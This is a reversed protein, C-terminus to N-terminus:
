PTPCRHWLILRDDEETLMRDQGRFELAVRQTGSIIPPDEESYIIEEYDIVLEEGDLRWSGVRTAHFGGIEEFSRDAGLKWRWAQECDGDSDTWLGVLRAAFANSAQRPSPDAMDKGAEDAAGPSQTQGYPQDSAAATTSSRESRAREGGSNLYFAAGGLAVAVLALAALNQQTM